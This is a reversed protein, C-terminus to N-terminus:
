GKKTTDNLEAMLGNIRKISDSIRKYREETSIEKKEVLNYNKKVKENDLSDRFYDKVSNETAKELKWKKMDIVNGM